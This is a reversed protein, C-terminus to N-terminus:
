LEPSTSTAPSVRHPGVYAGRRACCYHPPRGFQDGRVTECTSSLIFFAISPPRPYRRSSCTPPARVAEGVRVSSRPRATPPSTVTRVPFLPGSIMAARRPLPPLRLTMPGTVRGRTLAAHAARSPSGRSHNGGDYRVRLLPAVGDDDIWNAASPSLNRCAFFQMFLRRATRRVRRRMGHRADDVLSGERGALCGVVTRFCLVHNAIARLAMCCQHSLRSSAPHGLLAQYLILTLRLAEHVETLGCPSFRRCTLTAPYTAIGDLYDRTSDRTVISAAFSDAHPGLPSPLPATL